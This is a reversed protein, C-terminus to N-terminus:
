GMSTCPMTGVCRDCAQAHTHTHTRMGSRDVLKIRTPPLGACNGPARCPSVVARSAQHPGQLLAHGKRWLM